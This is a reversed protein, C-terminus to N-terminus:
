KESEPTGPFSIDPKSPLASEPAAPPADKISILETRTSQLTKLNSATIVYYWDGFRQNLEAVLKKGDVIKTEYSKTEEVYRSQALEFEIKQQEFAVLDADYKVFAPDRTPTTDDVPKTADGAAVGEDQPKPPADAATGAAPDPQADGDAPKASDVPPEGEKVIEAPVYGAPQIPAVPEMPKVPPAGLLSEDFSVRIMLYRNKETEGDPATPIEAAPKDIQNAAVGTQAADPNTASAAPKSEGDMSESGIEIDKDAGEVEKGVQLTYLVGDATGAQFQGNTSVLELKEQTGALSFGRDELEDQLRSIAAGAEQPNEDFEPQRNLKLDPTLLLHNKYKFKPRVGAIRMESLVNIMQSIRASQLEETETKLDSMQWPATSSERTLNLKDGQEKILSRVQGLPGERDETLAYNDLELRVLKNQDLRLLDPDIWDAFKTSLDLNFKVKYTPQEDPRRIYYYKQPQNNSGLAPDSDAGLVDGAEKGVILDVLVEGASDKLTIRRGVATADELEEEDVTLPDIVGLKEHESALRGALSEREIGIVSSATEALRAAAEAPYNHHSPIRWVGNENKVSFQQLTLEEADIANVELSSAKASSTFEEYFPQGVMEFDASATPRNLFYSTCALGVMTAAAAVFATTKVLENM